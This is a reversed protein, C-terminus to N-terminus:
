QETDPTFAFREYREVYFGDLGLRSEFLESWVEYGDVLDDGDQEYGSQERHAEYGNADAYATSEADGQAHAVDWDAASFCVVREEFVNAGDAKQGTLYVTRIAFWPM